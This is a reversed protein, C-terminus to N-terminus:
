RVIPSSRHAHRVQWRGDRLECLMTEAFPGGFESGDSRTATASGEGIWLALTPSLVTVHTRTYQYSIRTLQRLAAGTNALATARDPYLFGSEIIPPTDTDLVYGYLADANLQEAAQQMRAHLARVAAEISDQPLTGTPVTQAGASSALCGLVCLPLALRRLRSM